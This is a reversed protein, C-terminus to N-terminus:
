IVGPRKSEYAELLEKMTMANCKILFILREQGVINWGYSRQQEPSRASTTGNWVALAGFALRLPKKEKFSTADPVIAEFPVDGEDGSIGVLAPGIVCAGGGTVLTKRGNAALRAQLSTSSGDRQLDETM